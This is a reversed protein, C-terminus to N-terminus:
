AKPDAVVVGDVSDTWIDFESSTKGLRKCTLYALYYLHTMKSLKDISLDFHSEWKILDSASTQLTYPEGTVPTITIDIKQM